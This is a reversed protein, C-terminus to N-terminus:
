LSRSGGKYQSFAEIFSKRKPISIALMQGGVMVKDGYIGQVYKLNVLYCSNCRVFYAEQLITEYSALSAWQQITKGNGLHIYVSHNLVELFLIDDAQIRVMGEKTKLTLAIETKRSALMRLIRDIKVHFIPYSLPKVIYDFARVTYGEVAYEVLNTVFVIMVNPDIERIKRAVEMGQMKPVCIDLFVVDADCRYAELLSQGNDFHEVSFSCNPFSAECKRLYEMMQRAQPAEDELMIIKYM